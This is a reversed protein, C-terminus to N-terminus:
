PAPELVLVPIPRGTIRARYADYGPYISAAARLVGEREEGVAERAIVAVTRDRYTVEGRPDATLNLYWAPVSTQGFNTGVLALDDGVPVGLLPSTRRRGSKRGTTTVTIVPIGAVVGALTSRGRTLRLVWGDVHHATRAFMWAGAKTSAGRQTARQIANAPRVRYGLETQLGM